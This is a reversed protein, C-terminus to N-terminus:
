KILNSLYEEATRSLDKKLRYKASPSLEWRECVGRKYLRKVNERVTRKPVDSREAIDNVTVWKKEHLAKYVKIEQISVKM